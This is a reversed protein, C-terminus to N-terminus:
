IGRVSVSLWAKKASDALVPDVHMQELLFLVM